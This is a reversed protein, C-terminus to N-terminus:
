AQSPGMREWWIRWLDISARLRQGTIKKLAWHADAVLGREDSGLLEILEPVADRYGIKGIVLCAKRRVALSYSSGLLPHVLDADTSEACLWLGSLGALVGAEDTWRIVLGRLLSRARDGGLKGLVLAAQDHLELKTFDRDLASLVPGRGEGQALALVADGSAKRVEDVSDDLAEILAPLTTLERLEGLGAAAASRDEGAAAGLLEVLVSKTRSTEGVRGLAIALPRAPLQRAERAAILSLLHEEAAQGHRTLRQVLDDPRPREGSEWEAIDAEIADRVGDDVSSGVPQFRPSATAWPALLVGLTLLLVRAAM